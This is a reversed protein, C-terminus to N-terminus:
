TITEGDRDNFIVAEKVKKLIQSPVEDLPADKALAEIAPQKAEGALYIVITDMQKIAPFTMTIRTYDDGGYGIAMAKAATAPSGPKIGAIHSDPGIGLFGLRYDANKIERTLIKDFRKVTSRLSGGDLVPILNAGPLNFGARNLQLWNSDAHGVPGYREDSLTVTLNSLEKGQLQKSVAVVVPTSSGGPISWLIREGDM